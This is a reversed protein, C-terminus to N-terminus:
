MCILYRGMGEGGGHRGSLRSRERKSWMGGEEGRGREMGGGGGGEGRGGGGEREGDGRGRGRGGGESWGGEGRGREMEGEGEMERKYLHKILNRGELKQLYWLKATGDDSFTTFISNDPVVCM